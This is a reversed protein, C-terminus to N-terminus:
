ISHLILSKKSICFFSRLNYYTDFTFWIHQTLGKKDEWFTNEEQAKICLIIKETSTDMVMVFDIVGPAPTQILYIM